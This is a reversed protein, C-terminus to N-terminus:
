KFPAFTELRVSRAVSAHAHSHQNSQSCGAPLAVGEALM